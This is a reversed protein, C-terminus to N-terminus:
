RTLKRYITLCQQHAAVDHVRLWTAGHQAAVLHAALTGPLRDRVAAGTLKGIFSKRSAGILIPYGLTKFEELRVLIEVNHAVTKGFGIGPDLIINQKKIGDAIALKTQQRFFQKIDLVVDHYRPQAQRHMLVVPCGTEAVVQRMEPDRLGDIDNIWTAGAAIAQRAVVPKYTDISISVATKKRLATIVPLVRKLETTATIPKSGPRSSEGGIDIVSAGEAIMQLAHQVAQATSRYTGGDSFSDPTLNLIGMLRVTQIVSSASASPSSQVSSKIKRQPAM